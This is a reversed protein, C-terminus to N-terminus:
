TLLFYDFKIIISRKFSNYKLLYQRAIANGYPLEAQIGIGSLAKPNELLTAILPQLLLAVLKWIFIPAYKVKKAWDTTLVVKKRM